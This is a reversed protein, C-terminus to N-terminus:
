RVPFGPSPRPPKPEKQQGFAGGCAVTGAHERAGIQEGDGVGRGGRRRRKRGPRAGYMGRFGLGFGAKEGAGREGAEIRDHAFIRGPGAGPALAEGQRRPRWRRAAGAAAFVLRRQAVREM